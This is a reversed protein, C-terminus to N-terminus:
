AAKYEYTRTDPDVLVKFRKSPKILEFKSIVTRAKGELGPGLGLVVLRVLRDAMDSVPLSGNEVRSLHSKDINLIKAFKEGTLGLFKRLFRIEQGELKYPKAIIALAITSMLDNLRPIRPIEIKCTDCVLVEIKRLVVNNLGSATFRYDKRVKRLPGGCDLCLRESM